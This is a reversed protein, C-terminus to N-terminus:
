FASITLLSVKFDGINVRLKKYNHVVNQFLHLIGDTGPAMHLIGDTVNDPVMHLIGGTVNDPVMYLISGTGPVTLTM